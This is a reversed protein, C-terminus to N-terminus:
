LPRDSFPGDAYPQVLAGIAMEAELEDLGSLM